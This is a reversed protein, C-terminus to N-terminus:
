FIGIQRELGMRAVLEDFTINLNIKIRKTRSTEGSLIDVDSASIGLQRAFLRILEKNAKGNEPASKVYCKLNGMVEVKCESRGSSPVVKVEIVIAV